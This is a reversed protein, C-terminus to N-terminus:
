YKEAILKKLKANECKIDTLQKKIEDMKINLQHVEKMYSQLDEALKEALERWIKVAKETNDLETGEANMELQRVEAKSKNRYFIATSFSGALGTGLAILITILAEYM